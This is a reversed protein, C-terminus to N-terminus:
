DLPVLYETLMQNDAKLHYVEMVAGDMSAKLGHQKIRKSIKPYVVFPGISPAGEFQAILYKQQPILKKLFGAPLKNQPEQELVCGVNSRLRESPVHSPNDLFEGVTRSCDKSQTKAWEEVKLISPVIKHYPGLHEVYLMWFGGHIQEALRVEKYAGLKFYLSGGLAVFGSILFVGGWKLCKFLM